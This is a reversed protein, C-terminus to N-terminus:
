VSSNLCSATRSKVPPCLMAAAALDNPAAYCVRNLQTLAPRCTLSLPASRLTTLAWCISILRNHAASARTFISCSMRRFAFSYKALAYLELVGEDVPM